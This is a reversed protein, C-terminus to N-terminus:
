WRSSKGISRLYFERWIFIYSRPWGRVQTCAQHFREQSQSSAPHHRTRRELSGSRLKMLTRRVAKVLASGSLTFLYQHSLQIKKLNGAYFSHTFHQHFQCWPEVWLWSQLKVKQFATSTFVYFMTLKWMATSLTKLTKHM